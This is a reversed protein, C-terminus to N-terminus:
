SSEHCSESETEIKFSFRGVIKITSPTEPLLRHIPLHDGDELERGSTDRVDGRGPKGCIGQREFEDPVEPHFVKIVGVWLM